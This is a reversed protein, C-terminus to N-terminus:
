RLKNFMNNFINNDIHEVIKYKNPNQCFTSCVLHHINHRKIKGDKRLAVNHYGSRIDPQLVKETKNNRTRGHSSIDYDDYNDIVKWVEDNEVVAM